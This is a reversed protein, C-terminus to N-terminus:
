AQSSIEPHKLAEAAAQQQAQKKTRGCGTGFLSQGVFVQFVFQRDHPPGSEELQVYSPPQMRRSSLIEQLQSKTDNFRLVNGDAEFIEGFLIAVLSKAAEFGGDLYVAAILSEVIDALISEKERGGSLEEGKGLRLYAGLGFRRAIAALTDQDAIQSRYRSLTGENEAPYRSYLTETLIMGMVADGLFEMRQYDGVHGGTQEHQYSPHTLALVLHKPDTFRYNIRQELESYNKEAM